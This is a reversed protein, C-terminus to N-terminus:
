MILSTIILSRYNVVCVCEPHIEPIEKVAILRKKDLDYASFVSGFRGRGLLVRNGRKNTNYVYQHVGVTERENACLRHSLARFFYVFSSIQVCFIYNLCDCQM